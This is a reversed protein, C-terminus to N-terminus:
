YVVVIVRCVYSVNNSVFPNKECFLFLFLLWSNTPTSIPTVPDLGRSRMASDMRIATDYAEQYTLWVYPGAQLNLWIKTLMKNRDTYISWFTLSKIAVRQVKSDTIQRRGLMPNSPYRRASDSRCFVSNWLLFRQSGHIWVECNLM